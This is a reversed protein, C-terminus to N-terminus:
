CSGSSDDLKLLLTRLLPGAALDFPRRAEEVMLREAAAARAEATPGAVAIEPLDLTLERVIQQSPVGEVVPFRTRLSEPAARHRQDGTQAGGCRTRRHSPVGDPHQLRSQGARLQDIFWLRQQTYSLPLPQDRSVREIPAGQETAQESGAKELWAALGAVTPTEFLRSLPMEIGFLDRLRAIVQTALLSHGGLEFFNDCVGFAASGLVEQWIGLVRKETETRPGVRRAGGAGRALDALAQRDIEGSETLPLAPLRRVPCRLPLGYRDTLDIAAPLSAANVGDAGTCYATAQATLCAELRHATERHRRVFANAGNLGIVLHSRRHCLAALLSDLGQKASMDLFGRARLPDKGGYGRSMGRGDWTSWELCCSRVGRSRQFHAFGTLFRNATVYAGIMAGGFAAVASSFHVFVAEPYTESLRHLTWAGVIKPRLLARFSEPTEELLLRDHYSGALHLVAELRCAGDACAREVAAQLGEADTVDVAEYRVESGNAAALATLQRFALIREATPGGANLCADWTEPAPLPTRGILLVRSRCATLLRAAVEVGVGGLGGTLLALGGPTFPLPEPPSGGLPARELRPVLRRGHRYAAERDTQPRVPNALEALVLHANELADLDSATGAPPCPLDLHGVDLHPLEQPLTKILGLLAARELAIPDDPLVGQTHSSVVQLRVPIEAGQVGTLAQCLALLSYLGREQGAEMEAETTIEGAFPGYTWGHVVRRVPPLAALAALLRTYDSAEGPRLRYTAHDQQAFRDGPLVTVVPGAAALLAAVRAGLPDPGAFVLSVGPELAAEPEGALGLSADLARPRWVTQFFWDPVTGAGGTLIELAKLVPGFEGAEFRQRLQARQIKGIETKPVAAKEVPVLFNPNIGVSRVIAGRIERLLHVRAEETERARESEAAFLPSHFFVCIEDTDKGPVRVACAATFSVEVGEVEEAM